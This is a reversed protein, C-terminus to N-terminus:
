LGPNTCYAKPQLADPPILRRSGVVTCYLVCQVNYFWIEYTCCLTEGVESTQTIVMKNNSLHPQAFYTLPKAEIPVIGVCFLM